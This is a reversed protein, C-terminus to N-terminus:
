AELAGTNDRNYIKMYRPLAVKELYDVQDQQTKTLPQGKLLKSLVTQGLYHAAYLKAPDDGFVAKHQNTIKKVAEFSQALDMPDELGVSKATADIFQFGGKASSTPNKATPNRGSEAEYLAKYYPDADIEQEIFAIPQKEMTSTEGQFLDRIASGPPAKNGKFLSSYKSDKEKPAAEQGEMVGVALGAKPAVKSFLDTIPSTYKSAARLGRAVQAQGGPSALYRIGAGLGIGSAVGVPGLGSVGAAVGPGIIGGSTFGINATKSLPSKGAQEAVRGKIADEAVFFRSLETNIPEIEPTYREVSNKLDETIARNFQADLKDGQKWGRGYSIKQGQLYDLTGKGNIDIDDKIDNLAKRYDAIENGKIRGTKLLAETKPFSAYVDVGGGIAKAAANAEDFGQVITGAEKILPQIAAEYVKDVESANRSKGFKGQELLPDIKAQQIPVRVGDAREITEIAGKTGYDPRRLGLSYRDLANAAEPIAKATANVTKGAVKGAAGLAGMTGIDEVFRNADEELTTMPESGTVQLLKNFVTNGASMGAPGAVAGLASATLAGGGKLTRLARDYDTGFSKQETGFVRNMGMSTADAVANQLDGPLHYLNSVGDPISKVTDVLVGPAAKVGRWLASGVDGATSRLNNASFLDSLYNGSSAVPAVGLDNEVADVPIAGLSPIPMPTGGGLDNEVMDVPIADAM